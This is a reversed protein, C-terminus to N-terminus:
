FRLIQSERTEISLLGHQKLISREREKGKKKVRDLYRFLLYFLGESIEILINPDATNAKLKFREGMKRTKKEDCIRAPKRTKIGM